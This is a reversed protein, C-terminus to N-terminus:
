ARVQEWVEGASSARLARAALEACAGANADAIWGAVRPVLAAGVSVTRIGLGILLPLVAPDAAADGCVSVSIGAEAAGAVVTAILALVRPDAALAPGTGPDARDLGLVQSTLDNTGISFFDVERAFEGAAAATGAVEVMIGLEPAARGTAAAAKALAARVQRVEGASTVMPVMVAVRADGGTLLVAELQDALARPDGLLAALGAPGGRLFPPIKDGSFDLLRVVAPRGALERLIPALAATHEAVAPWGAAKVFPIETRILGAGAAGRALGLRAEVASAVNCLVTVGAGDRTRPAVPGGAPSGANSIDSRTASIESPIIRRAPAATRDAAAL